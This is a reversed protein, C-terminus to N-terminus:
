YSSSSCRWNPLKDNDGILDAIDDEWRQHPSMLRQAARVTVNTMNLRLNFVSEREKKRETLQAEKKSKELHHLGCGRGQRM